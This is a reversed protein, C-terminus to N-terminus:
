RASAALAARVIRRRRVADGILYLAEIRRAADEDFELQSVSGIIACRAQALAEAAVPAM